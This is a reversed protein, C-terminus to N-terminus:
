VQKDSAEEEWNKLLLQILYENMHVIKVPSKFPRLPSGFFVLNNEKNKRKTNNGKYTKNTNRISINSPRDKVNLHNEKLHSILRENEHGANLTGYQPLQNYLAMEDDHRQSFNFYKM